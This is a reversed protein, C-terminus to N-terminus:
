PIHVAYLHPPGYLKQAPCKVAQLFENSHILHASPGKVSWSLSDDKNYNTRM